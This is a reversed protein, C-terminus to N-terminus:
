SQLNHALVELRLPRHLRLNPERCYSVVVRAIRALAHGIVRVPQVLDHIFCEHCFHPGLFGDPSSQVIFLVSKLLQENAKSM